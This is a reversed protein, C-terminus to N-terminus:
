ANARLGGPRELKWPLEMLRRLYTIQGLHREDHAYYSVVYIGIVREGEWAHPSRYTLGFEEDIIGDVAREASAFARRMYDVVTEKDPFRLSAAVKDDMDTGMQKWGLVTPDFGWSALLGEAHWIEQQSGLAEHLRPTMTPIKAQLYDAWRGLHWGNWAISHTSPTPHWRMQEETIDELARLVRQHGVKFRQKVADIFPQAM